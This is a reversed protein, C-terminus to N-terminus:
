RASCRRASRRSARTRATTARSRPESCPTSSPRAADLPPEAFGSMDHARARRVRRAAHQRRRLARQRPRLRHATSPCDLVFNSYHGSNVFSGIQGVNRDGDGASFANDFKHVPFLARVGLDHFRDLERACGIPTASPRARRPTLFCDFLNSTEIGLIV